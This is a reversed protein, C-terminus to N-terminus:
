QLIEETTDTQVSADVPTADESQTQDTIEEAEPQTEPVEEPQQPEPNETPQEPQPQEPVNTEPQQEPQPQEPTQPVNETPKEQKEPGKHVVRTVPIYTSKALFETKITQGDKKYVKYSNVISGNSGQKVIKTEGPKLSQDTVETTSFPTYGANETTINITVGDSEDVGKISITLVRNYTTASITVPYKKNNEFVFDITGYSVTADRGRPVYGVPMSHNLRYVIKLDALVVANYLTSSVQCIGGGMGDVVKDGEYVHAVKFGTASTRPGVVQNFSFRERPNLVYGNIKSAALAVNSARNADSSAYSTSYTSLTDTAFKSQLDKVTVDPITITAPIEYPQTNDRNAEIIQAAIDKDFSIGEIEPTFIYEGNEEHYEANKAERIYTSIFEATDIPQAPIDKITLTITNDIKGDAIDEYILLAVDTETIGKGGIGNKVIIKDSGTEVSYLTAPTVKDGLQEDIAALLMGNDCSYVPLIDTGFLKSKYAELIRVFLNGDKGTDYAKQAMTDVDCILNIQAATLSFSIDECEFPIQMNEDLTFNEALIETAQELTCDSLDTDGATVGKAVTNGSVILSGYAIFGAALAILVISILAAIIYKNKLYNSIEKM